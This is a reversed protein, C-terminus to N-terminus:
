SPDPAAAYYKVGGVTYVSRYYPDGGTKVTVTQKKNTVALRYRLNGTKRVHKDKYGTLHYKTYYYTTNGHTTVKRITVSHIPKPSILRGKKLAYTELYGDTTAVLMRTQSAYKAANYLVAQDVNATEAKTLMQSPTTIPTLKSLQSTTGSSTWSGGAHVKPWNKRIHSSLVKFNFRAYPKVDGTVYSGSGDIQGYVITNKPLTVSQTTGYLKIKLAANLRYYRYPQPQTYTLNVTTNGVQVPITKLSAEFASSDASASTTGIGTLAILATTLGAVALAHWKKM